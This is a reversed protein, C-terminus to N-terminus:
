VPENKNDDPMNPSSSIARGKMKKRMNKALFGGIGTHEMYHMKLDAFSKLLLFFILVGQEAAPNRIILLAFFGFIITLHMPVIREYPTFMLKAVNDKDPDSKLNYFFSFLHNLFFVGVAIYVFETHAKAFAGKLFQYYGFHFFGYHVCFFGAMFANIAKQPAADLGAGDVLTKANLMKIVNFVGIIVNQYWYIVLVESLDWKQYVALIIVILNSLVLGWASKDKAVFEWFPIVSAKNNETFFRRKKLFLSM